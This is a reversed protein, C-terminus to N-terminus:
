YENSDHPNASWAEPKPDLAPQNQSSSIAVVDKRHLPNLKDASGSFTNTFPLPNSEVISGSIYPKKSKQKSNLPILTDVIGSTSLNQHCTGILNHSRIGQFHRM